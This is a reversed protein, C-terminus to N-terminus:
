GRPATNPGGTTVEDAEPHAPKVLDQHSIHAPLWGVMAPFHRLFHFAIISRGLNWWNRAPLHAADVRQSDERILTRLAQKLTHNFRQDWIIVNAELNLSLSLPDLNSSGVTAWNDDMVAVKGHLPRRGYEYIEVGSSVLYHYLLRAGTKVLPIDPHGQLVLQVKVGRRAAKRIAHLLRYGPFFYANAIIVEHRAKALMKIYHREITTRHYANDRWVFLVQAMTDLSAPTPRSRRFGPKWRHFLTPNGPLWSLAFRRIDDVVPGRIEVTYDQKAEQGFSLLHDASYNIGGVYATKEDIVVIKRHLRRFLNTRLGGFRRPAPDYYRLIVGADTLRRIFDDSLAASGYGDILLEVQVGRGAADCLAAHLAWGVNDEYWIFTELLISHAARAIADFLVPYYEDGNTLLTLQNDPHWAPKM